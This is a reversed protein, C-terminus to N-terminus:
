ARRCELRPEHYMMEATGKFAGRRLKMRETILDTGYVAISITPPAGDGLVYSTDRKHMSSSPPHWM